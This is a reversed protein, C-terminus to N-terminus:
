KGKTVVSSCMIEIRAGVVIIGDEQALHESNLIYTLSIDSRTGLLQKMPKKADQTWPTKTVVLEKEGPENTAGSLTKTRNFALMANPQWEDLYTFDCAHDKIYTDKCTHDKIYTDKCSLDKIYTDKCSHDNIYTDKCSLDKIYTDKCSHDNIYTDKCSHDKIYTDKCTHDKIYTDKCSHDQESFFLKRVDEALKVKITEPQSGKIYTQRILRHHVFLPLYIPLTTRAAWSFDERETIFTHWKM